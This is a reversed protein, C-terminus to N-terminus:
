LINENVISKQLFISCKSVESLSISLIRLKVRKSFFLLWIQAKGRFLKSFKTKIGIWTFTRIMKIGRKCFNFFNLKATKKQSFYGRKGQKPRKGGLFKCLFYTIQIGQFIQFMKIGRKCFIFFDPNSKKKARYHWKKAKKSFNEFFILRIQIGQFFQVM